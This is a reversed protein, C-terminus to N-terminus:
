NMQALLLSDSLKGFLKAEEKSKLLKITEKARAQTWAALQKNQGIENKDEFYSHAKESIANLRSEYDEITKGAGQRLISILFRNGNYTAIDEQLDAIDDHVETIIDYCNWSAEEWIKELDPHAKYILHRILRVDCSKTSYFKKFGVKTPWKDKRCDMEIKQYKKIERTLKKIEKKHYGAKILADKINKWYQDLEKAALDWRSELYADLMYIQYQIDILHNVFATNKVLETIVLLDTLRRYSFLDKIKEKTAKEVPYKKTTM